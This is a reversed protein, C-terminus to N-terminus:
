TGSGCSSARAVEDAATVLDAALLVAGALLELHEEQAVIDTVGALGGPVGGMEAVQGLDFHGERNLLDEELFHEVGDGFGGAAQFTQVLLNLAGHGGPAPIGDDLRQHAQPPHGQKMGSGGKGFQAIQVSKGMGGLEHTIQAQNGAFVGGALIAALTADGFHAVARSTAGQDLRGPAVAARGADGWVQEFTLFAQGFGEGLDGPLGLSAEVVAEDVEGADASLFGLDGDGRDGAFEGAKDPGDGSQDLGQRRLM